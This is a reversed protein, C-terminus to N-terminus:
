THKCGTNPEWSVTDPGAWVLGGNDTSGWSQESNMLYNFLPYHQNEATDGSFVHTRIHAYTYTQISLIVCSCHWQNSPLICNFKLFLSWPPRIQIWSDVWHIVYRIENYFMMYWLWYYQKCVKSGIHLNICLIYDMCCNFNRWFMFPLFWKMTYSQIM